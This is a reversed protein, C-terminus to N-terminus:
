HRLRPPFDRRRRCRSRWRHGTLKLLNPESAIYVTKGGDALAFGMPLYLKDYFVTSKDAVGDKDTDELVVLSDGPKADPKLHPQSPINAVWLRGESDFTMAAPSMIPSDKESAFLNIDFGEAMTFAKLSEEPSLLNPAEGGVLDTARTLAPFNFLFFAAVLLASGCGFCPVFHSSRKVRSPITTMMM